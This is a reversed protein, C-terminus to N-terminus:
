RGGSILGYMYIAHAVSIVSKPYKDGGDWM